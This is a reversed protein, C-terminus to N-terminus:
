PSRRWVHSMIRAPRITTARRSSGTSGASISTGGTRASAIATGVPRASPSRSFLPASLPRASRASSIGATITSNAAHAQTVHRWTRRPVTGISEPSWWNMIPRAWIM